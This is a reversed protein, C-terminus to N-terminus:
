HMPRPFPHLMCWCRQDWGKGSGIQGGGTVMAMRGQGIVVEGQGKGARASNRMSITANAHAAGEVPACPNAYDEVGCTSPEGCHM